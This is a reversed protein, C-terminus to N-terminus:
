IIEVLIKVSFQSIEEPDSQQPKSLLILIPTVEFVSIVPCKVHKDAHVLCQNELCKQQLIMM